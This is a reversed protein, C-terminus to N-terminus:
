VSNPLALSLNLYFSEPMPWRKNKFGPGCGQDMGVLVLKTGVLFTAETFYSLPAAMVGITKV